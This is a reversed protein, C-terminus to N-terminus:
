RRPALLDEVVLDFGGGQYGHFTELMVTPSRYLWREDMDMAVFAHLLPHDAPNFRPLYALADIDGARLVVDLDSGAFASVRRKTMVVDDSRPAIDPHM